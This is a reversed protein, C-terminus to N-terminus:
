LELSMPRSVMFSVKEGEQGFYGGFGFNVRVVDEPRFTKAPGGRPKGHLAFEGFACVVEAEGKWQQNFAMGPGVAGERLEPAVHAMEEGGINAFFQNIYHVVRFSM